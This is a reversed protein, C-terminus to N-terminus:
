EKDFLEREAKRRRILGPIDKGDAKIWRGFQQSAGTYNNANLLRLLTSTKFAGRGINYILSCLADYQNQSLDVDVLDNVAEAATLVDDMLHKTAEEETITDGHKVGKTTGYGITWVGAPCLYADSRFGEFQKVLDLCVQSPNM